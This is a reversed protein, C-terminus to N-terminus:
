ASKKPPAPKVPTDYVLIAEGKDVADMYCGHFPEVHNEGADDPLTGAKTFDVDTWGNRNAIDEATDFDHDTGPAQRVFVLLPHQEGAPYRGDAAMRAVAAFMHIEYHADHSM